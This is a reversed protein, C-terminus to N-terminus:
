FAIKFGAVVNTGSYDTTGRLPEGFEVFHYRLDINFIFHKSLLLDIGVGPYAGMATAFNADTINDADWTVDSGFYPGMGATLYPRIFSSLAGWIGSEVDDLEYLPYYILGVMVYGVSVTHTNSSITEYHDSGRRVNVKRSLVESESDSFGGM